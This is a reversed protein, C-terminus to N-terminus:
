ASELAIVRKYRSADGTSADTPVVWTGIFKYATSVWDQVRDQPARLVVQMREAMIEIGSNSLQWEGVKGNLGAETILAGMDQYYERLADGAVLLGRHVPIGSSPGGQTWIEAGFGEGAAPPGLTPSVYTGTTGWYVTTPAPCETDRIFLCGASEGVAFQRYIYYDPLATNLTRWESDAFLEQLQTPDLHLHFRGDPMEPVNNTWFHAVASRITAFTLVSSSTLTDISNGGSVREIFSSDSSVIADRATIATPNNAALTLTGPGVFDGATDPSVNVISVAYGTGGHYITAALPNNSSVAAFQVQSGAALDPRRATNFGNLRTVHITTTSGSTYSEDIVAVGSLAANYYTDRALRNLTQAGQLGVSQSNQLFLDAIASIVTPMHSDIASAWEQIQATWQEYTVTQVPADSGPTLPAMTPTLLGRRTYNQSDGVNLPTEEVTADGRFLLKPYLPDHIARQLMGSQVIARIESSQLITSFNPM